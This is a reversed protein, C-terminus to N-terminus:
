MSSPLEGRRRDNDGCGCVCGCSRRVIIGGGALSVRGDGDVNDLEMRGNGVGGAFVCVCCERFVAKVRRTV